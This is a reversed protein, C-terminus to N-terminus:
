KAKLEIVLNSNTNPNFTIEKNNYTVLSFSVTHEGEVVNNITFNGDFDTYVISEKGDLIVKVGTLNEGQDVVTGSISFIKPEKEENNNAFSITAAFCAIILVILKM